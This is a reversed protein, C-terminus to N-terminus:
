SSSTAISSPLPQCWVAHMRQEILQPMSTRTSPGVSRGPARRCPGGRIRPSCTRSPAAGRGSGSRGAGGSWAAAGGRGVARELRDVPVGRDGLDGGAETVDDVGVAPRRDEEVAAAALAVVEAAAYPAPSACRGRCGSCSWRGPGPSSRRTRPRRGATRGSGSGCSRRSRARGPRQTRPCSGTATARSGAPGAGDQLRDGVIGCRVSSRRRDGGCRTRRGRRCGGGGPRGAAVGMQEGGQEGHEDVVAVEGVRQSASCALPRSSTTAWRRPTSMAADHALAPTRRPRRAGVGGADDALRGAPHRDELVEADLLRRVRRQVAVELLEDHQQGPLKPTGPPIFRCERNAESAGPPGALAAAAAALRHRRGSRVAEDGTQHRAVDDGVLDEGVMGSRKRARSTSDALGTCESASLAACARPAAAREVEDDDDVDGEGLRRALGVVHQRRRRLELLPLAREEVELERPVDEVEPARDELRHGARQRLVLDVGAQAAGEAGVRVVVERREGVAAAAPGAPTGRRRGRGRRSAVGVEALQQRHQQVLREARRQGRGVAHGRRSRRREPAEGVAAGEGVRVRDAAGADLAVTGLEALRQEVGDQRARRADREGDVVVVLRPAAQVCGVAADDSAM